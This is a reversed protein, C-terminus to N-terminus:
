PQPSLSSSGTTLDSSQFTVHGSLKITIGSRRFRSKRENQNTTATEPEQLHNSSSSLAKSKKQFLGRRILRGVKVINSRMAPHVVIAVSYVTVQLFKRNKWNLLTSVNKCAFDGAAIRWRIKFNLQGMQNLVFLDKPFHSFFTISKETKRQFFNRFLLPFDEFGEKIKKLIGKKM